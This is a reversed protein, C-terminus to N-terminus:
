LIPKPSVSFDSHISGLEINEDVNLITMELAVLLIVALIIFEEFRHDVFLDLVFSLCRPIRKILCGIAGAM